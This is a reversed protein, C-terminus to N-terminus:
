LGTDKGSFLSSLESFIEERCWILPPRYIREVKQVEVGESYFIIGQKQCLLSGGAIDWINKPTMSIVFDIKGASLRGLKYAISGMPTITFHPHNFKKFEGKEWESRSVEGELVQRKHVLCDSAETFLEDTVPNYVWGQGKFNQDKFCGVSIAWESRGLIYERTGDLPDIAILPFSWHGDNEESFISTSPYCNELHHELLLSLALDLSTVPTGDPKLQSMGPRHQPLIQKIQDILETMHDALNPTLIKQEDV